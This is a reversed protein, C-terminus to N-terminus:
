DLYKQFKSPRPKILQDHRLHYDVYMQEMVAEIEMSSEKGESHNQIILSTDKNVKRVFALYDETEPKM